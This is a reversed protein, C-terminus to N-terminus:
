YRKDADVVRDILGKVRRRWERGAGYAWAVAHPVWLLPEESRGLHEYELSEPATRRHVATAIQSRERQDQSPERHEIILRRGKLAILDHLLANIALRRATPERKASEYVLVRLPLQSISALLTRRRQPSEHAFHLSRQGPLLMGRLEGRVTRLDQPAVVAACIIYRDRQSEDVFAHVSM